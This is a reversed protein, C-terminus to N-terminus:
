EPTSHLSQPVTLTAIKGHKCERELQEVLSDLTNSVLACNARVKVKTFHTDLSNLVDM